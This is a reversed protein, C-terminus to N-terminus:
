VRADIETIVEEVTLSDILGLRQAIKAMQISDRVVVLASTDPLVDPDDSDLVPNKVSVDKIFAVLIRDPDSDLFDQYVQADHEGSDGILVFTLDPYADLIRRIRAHKHGSEM